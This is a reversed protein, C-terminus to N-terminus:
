KALAAVLVSGHSGIFLSPLMAAFPQLNKLTDSRIMRFLERELVPWSAFWVHVMCVM